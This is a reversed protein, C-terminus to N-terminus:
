RYRGGMMGPGGYGPQARMRQIRPAELALAYWQDNLGANSFRNVHGNRLNELNQKLVDSEARTKAQTLVQIAGDIDKQQVLIWSYLAYILVGKEDKFRRAGKNFLKKVEDMKDKKYCRAMKMALVLPDFLMAHEFYKDAMDYEKLQYHFQARITDTQRRILINWKEFKKLGDLLSIAERVAQAQEAEIEAQFKPTARGAMLNVKRTLY